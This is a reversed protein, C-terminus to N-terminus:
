ALVSVGFVVLECGPILQPHESLRDHTCSEDRVRLIRGVVTKQSYWRWRGNIKPGHARYCHCSSMCTVAHGQMSQGPGLTLVIWFSGLGHIQPRRDKCGVLHRYDVTESAKHIPGRPRPGISSSRMIHNTYTHTHETLHNPVPQCERKAMISPPDRGGVRDVWM